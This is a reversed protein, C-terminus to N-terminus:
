SIREPKLARRAGQFLSRGPGLALIIRTYREERGEDNIATETKYAKGEM